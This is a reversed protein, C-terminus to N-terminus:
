HARRSFAKDSKERTFIINPNQRTLYNFFTEAQVESNFVEFIDDVHRRYYLPGAEEYDDSWRKEHYGMFLDALTPALASGMAIGDIQDHVM